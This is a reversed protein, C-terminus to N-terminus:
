SNGNVKESGISSIEAVEANKMAEYKQNLTAAMKSPDLRKDQGFKAKIKRTAMLDERLRDKRNKYKLNIGIAISEVKQQFPRGTKEDFGVTNWDFLGHNAIEQSTRWDMIDSQIMDRVLDLEIKSQIDVGLDEVYEKEWQDILMQEIPCIHGIPAIKFKFLPCRENIPCEPGKCRLATSTKIVNRAVVKLSKALATANEESIKLHELVEPPYYERMLKNVIQSGTDAVPLMNEKSQIEKITEALQTKSTKEYEEKERMVEDHISM